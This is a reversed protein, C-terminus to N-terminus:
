LTGTAPDAAAETAAASDAVVKTAAATKAEQKAARNGEWHLRRPRMFEELVEDTVLARRQQFGAVVQQLMTIAEKKM